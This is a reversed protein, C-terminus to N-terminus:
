PIAAFDDLFARVALNSRAGPAPEYFERSGSDGHCVGGEGTADTRMQLKLFGRTLALCVCVAAATPKIRTLGGRAQM